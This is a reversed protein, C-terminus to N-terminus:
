NKKDLKDMYAQDIRNQLISVQKELQQVCTNHYEIKDKFSERMGSLIMEQVDNTISFSDLLAAIREDIVEERVYPQKCNGKYGSCHYYIFSLYEV